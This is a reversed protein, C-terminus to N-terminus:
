AQPLEEFQQNRLQPVFGAERIAQQIGQADFRYNAGAVSVVNEEIMIKQIIKLRSKKVIFGYQKFTSTNKFKFFNATQKLLFSVFSYKLDIQISQNIIQIIEPGFKTWSSFQHRHNFSKRVSTSTKLNGICKLKMMCKLGVLCQKM